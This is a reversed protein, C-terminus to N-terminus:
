AASFLRDAEMHSRIDKAMAESDEKNFGLIEFLREEPIPLSSGDPDEWEECNNHTWDRIQWKTMPGFQQWIERLIEEEFDSLEDLDPLGGIALTVDHDERDLILSNWEPTETSGDALDKTQSLVPGHPLSVMRDFTMPLGSKEISKREALYMLKMLKLVPM